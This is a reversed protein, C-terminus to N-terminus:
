SPQQVATATVVGSEQILLSTIGRRHLAELLVALCGPSRAAGSTETIARELEGMSDIIVRRARVRDAANLWVRLVVDVNCEVSPQRL